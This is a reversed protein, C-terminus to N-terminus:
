HKRRRHAPDLLAPAVARAGNRQHEQHPHERQPRPRLRGPRDPRLCPQLAEPKVGYRALAHTEGSNRTIHAM